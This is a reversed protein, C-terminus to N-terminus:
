VVSGVARWAVASKILIPANGKNELDSPELTIQNNFDVEGKGHEMDEAAINM